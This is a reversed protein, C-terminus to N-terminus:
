SEGNGNMAANYQNAVDESDLTSYHQIMKLSSHGSLQMVAQLAMGSKVWNRIASHRFLHPHLNIKKGKGDVLALAESMDKLLYGLARTSLRKPNPHWRYFVPGLLERIELSWGERGGPFHSVPEGEAGIKERMERDVEQFLKASRAGFHVTRVTGGKGPVDAITGIQSGEDWSVQPWDISLLESARLGTDLLLSVILAHRPKRLGEAYDRIRAQNDDSLYKTTVKPAKLMEVKVPNPILDYELAFTLMTKIDRQHARLTNAKYPEGDERKLDGTYGLVDISTLDCPEIGEADAWYCFKRATVNYTKLTNESLRQSKARQVFLNFVQAFSKAGGNM